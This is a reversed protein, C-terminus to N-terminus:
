AVGTTPPSQLFQGEWDDQANAADKILDLGNIRMLADSEPIAGYPPRTPLQNDM